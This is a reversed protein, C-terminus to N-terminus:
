RKWREFFVTIDLGGNVKGVEESKYRQQRLGRIGWLKEFPSYKNKIETKKSFEEAFLAKQAKTKLRDTTMYNEDLFGAEVARQLWGSAAPTCLEIPITKKTIGGHEGAQGPEDLYKDLYEAEKHYDQCLFCIAAIGEVFEDKDSWSHEKVWDELDKKAQEELHGVEKYADRLIRICTKKDNVNQTTTWDDGGMCIDAGYDLKRYLSYMNAYKRLNVGEYAKAARESEGYKMENEHVVEAADTGSPMGEYSLREM